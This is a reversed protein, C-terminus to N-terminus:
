AVRELAPRLSDARECPFIIGLSMELEAPTGPQLQCAVGRPRCSGLVRWADNPQLYVGLHVSGRTAHLASVEAGDREPTVRFGLRELAAIIQEATM